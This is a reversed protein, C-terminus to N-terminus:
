LAPSPCGAWQLRIMSCGRRGYSLFRIIEVAVAAMRSFLAMISTREGELPHLSCAEASDSQASHELFSFVCPVCLPSLVRSCRSRWGPGPENVHGLAVEAPLQQARRHAEADRVRRSVALLIEVLKCERGRRIRVGQIPEQTSECADPDDPLHSGSTKGQGCKAPRQAPARGVGDPGRHNESGVQQRVGPRIHRRAHQGEGGIPPRKDDGFRFAAIWWHFYSILAHRIQPTRSQRFSKEHRYAVPFVLDSGMEM